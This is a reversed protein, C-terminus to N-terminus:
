ANASKNRKGSPLIDILRLVNLSIDM